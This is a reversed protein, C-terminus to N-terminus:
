NKNVVLKGTLWKKIVMGFLGPVVLVFLILNVNAILISTLLLLWIGFSIVINRIMLDLAKAYVLLSNEENNAVIGVWVIYVSILQLLFMFIVLVFNLQINFRDNLWFLLCTLGILFSIVLSTLKQYKLSLKSQKLKNNFKDSAIENNFTLYLTSYVSSILGYVIFNKLLVLWFVISIQSIHYFNDVLKTLKSQKKEM